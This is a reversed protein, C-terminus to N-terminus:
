DTNESDKYFLFEDDNKFLARYFEQYKFLAVGISRSLLKADNSYSNWLSITLICNVGPSKGQIEIIDAEGVIYINTLFLYITSKSKRQIEYYCEGIKLLKSVEKHRSISDEFFNISEPRPLKEYKPNGEPM